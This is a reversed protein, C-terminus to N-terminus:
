PASLHVPESAGFEWYQCQITTNYACIPEALSARGVIGSSMEGSPCAKRSSAKLIHAPQGQTRESAHSGQSIDFSGGVPVEVFSGSSCLQRLMIKDGLVEDLCFLRLFVTAAHKEPKAQKTPLPCHSGQQTYAPAQARTPLYPSM